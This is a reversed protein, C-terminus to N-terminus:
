YAYKHNLNGLDLAPLPDDVPMILLCLWCFSFEIVNAVEAGTIAVNIM